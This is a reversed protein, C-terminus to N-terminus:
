SSLNPDLLVVADILWRHDSYTFAVLFRQQESLGVIQPELVAYITKDPPYPYRASSVPIMAVQQNPDVENELVPLYEVLDTVGGQQTLLDLGVRALFRDTLLSAMRLPEQENFCAVLQRTTDRIGQLDETSVPDGAPLDARTIRAVNSGCGSESKIAAALGLLDTWGLEDTSCEFGVPIDQITPTGPVPSAQVAAAASRVVANPAALGGSRGIMVAADFVLGM